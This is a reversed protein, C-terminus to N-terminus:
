LPPSGSTAPGDTSTRIVGSEDTFFYRRGTKDPQIPSATAQYAEVIGDGDRDSAEYVFTYGSKAGIAVTADILGDGEPGMEALARPFGREPHVATYSFCATNITRLIGVASAENAAM